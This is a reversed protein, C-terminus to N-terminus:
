AAVLYIFRTLGDGKKRVDRVIYATTVDYEDTVTLQDGIALTPFHHTPLEVGVAGHLKSLGSGDDVPLEADQRPGRSCTGAADRVTVVNPLGALLHVVDDRFTM